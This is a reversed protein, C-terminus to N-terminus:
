AIDYISETTGLITQKKGALAGVEAHKEIINGRKSSACLLTIERVHANIDILHYSATAIHHCLMM